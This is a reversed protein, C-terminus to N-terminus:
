EVSNDERLVYGAPWIPRASDFRAQGIATTSSLLVTGLVCSVIRSRVM